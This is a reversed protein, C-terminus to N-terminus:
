NTIHKTTNRQRGISYTLEGIRLPHADDEMYVVDHTATSAAVNSLLSPAKGKAKAKAKPKAKKGISRIIATVKLKSEQGKKKIEAKTIKREENRVIKQKSAVEKDVLWALCCDSRCRNMFRSGDLYLNFSCDKGCKYTVMIPLLASRPMYMATAEDVVKGWFPLSAEGPRVQLITCKEHKANRADEGIGDEDPM